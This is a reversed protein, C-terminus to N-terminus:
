KTIENEKKCFLNCIKWKLKNTQKFSKLFFFFRFFFFTLGFHSECFGFDIVLRNWFKEFDYLVFNLKLDFFFLQIFLYKTLTISQFKSVFFLSFTLGFSITNVIQLFNLLLAIEVKMKFFWKLFIFWLFLSFLFLFFFLQIITILSWKYTINHLKSVFFSFFFFFSLGFNKKKWFRIVFIKIEFVRAFVKRSQQFSFWHEINNYASTTSVKSVFVTFFNHINFINNPQTSFSEFFIQVNFYGQFRFLHNRFEFLIRISTPLKNM